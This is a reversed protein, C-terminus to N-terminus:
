EFYIEFDEWNTVKKLKVDPFSNDEKYKIIESSIFTKNDSVKVKFDEWNDVFKVKIDPFSNDQKFTVKKGKLKSLDDKNM